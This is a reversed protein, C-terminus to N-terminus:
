RTPRKAGATGWAGASLDKARSHSPGLAGPHQQMAEQWDRVLAAVALIKAAITRREDLVADAREKLYHHSTQWAEGLTVELTSRMGGLATDTPHEDLYRILSEYTEADPWGGIKLWDAVTTNPPPQVIIPTPLQAMREPIVKQYLVGLRECYLRSIPRRLENISGSGLKKLTTVDIGSWEYMETYSIHYGPSIALEMLAKAKLFAQTFPTKERAALARHEGSRSVGLVTSSNDVVREYGRAVATSM